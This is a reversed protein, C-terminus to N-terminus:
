QHSMEFIPVYSVTYFRGQIFICSFVTAGSFFSRSFLDARITFKFFFINVLVFHAARPSLTLDIVRYSYGNCCRLGTVSLAKPTPHVDKVSLLRWSCGGTPRWTNRQARFWRFIPPYFSLSNSQVDSVRDSAICYHPLYIWASQARLSGSKRASHTRFREADDEFINQLIYKTHSFLHWYLCFAHFLFTFCLSAICTCARVPLQLAICARVPLQLQTFGPVYLEFYPYDGRGKACVSARQGTHPARTIFTRTIYM